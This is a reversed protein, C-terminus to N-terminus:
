RLLSNLFSISCSFFLWRYENVQATRDWGDSCHILVSRKDNHILSVLRNTSTLIIKLLFNIKFLIEGSFGCVRIHSLWNSNGSDSFWTRDDQSGHRISSQLKDLSDSVFCM